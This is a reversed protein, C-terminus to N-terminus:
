GLMVIQSAELAPSPMLARTQCPTWASPNLQPCSSSKLFLSLLASQMEHVVLRLHVCSFVVRWMIHCLEFSLCCIGQLNNTFINIVLSLASDYLLWLLLLCASALSSSFALSCGSSLSCPCHFNSLSIEGQPTRRSVSWLYRLRCEQRNLSAQARSLPLHFDLVSFCRLGFFVRILLRCEVVHSIVLFSSFLPLFSPVQM